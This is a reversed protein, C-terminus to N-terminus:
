RRRHRKVIGMLSDMVERLPPSPTDFCMLGVFQDYEQEYTADNGVRQFAREVSRWPDLRDIDSGGRGADKRVLDVVKNGFGNESELMERMCHLDYLHRVLAPDGTPANRNRALVRWTLAAVKDAATEVPSVYAVSQVDPVPQDGALRSLRCFLDLSVPKADSAEGSMEVKLFARLGPSTAFESTYKFGLRLFCHDPMDACATKDEVYDAALLAERAAAGFTKVAQHLASKGMARTPRLKFDVDESFRATLNHGVSLATGGSFHAIVLPNRVAAVIGVARVAHWEKEVLAADVGLEIAAKYIAASDFPRV